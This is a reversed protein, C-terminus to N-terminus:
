GGEEDDSPELRPNVAPDRLEGFTWDLRGHAHESFGVALAHGSRIRRELDARDHTRAATTIMQVIPKPQHHEPAWSPWRERRWRDYTSDIIFTAIGGRGPTHRRQHDQLWPTGLEAFAEIGVDVGFGILTEAVQWDVTQANNPGAADIVVAIRPALGIPLRVCEIADAYTTNNQSIAGKYWVWPRGFEEWHMQAAQTIGVPCVVKAFRPDGKIQLYSDFQMPKGPPSKGFPLHVMIRDAGMTRAHGIAMEMWAPWGEALLLPSIGRREESWQNGAFTFWAFGESARWYTNADSGDPIEPSNSATAMHGLLLLAAFGGLLIAWTRTRNM